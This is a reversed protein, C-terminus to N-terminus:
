TGFTKFQKPNAAGYLEVVMNEIYFTTVKLNRTTHAITFGRGQANWNKSINRTQIKNIDGSRSPIKLSFKSVEIWIEFSANQCGYVFLKFYRSIRM